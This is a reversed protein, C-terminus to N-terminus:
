WARVAEGVVGVPRGGAIKTSFTTMPAATASSSSNALSGIAGSASVVSSSYACMCAAMHVIGGRGGTGASFGFVGTIWSTGSYLPYCSDVPLSDNTNLGKVATDTTSAIKSLLYEYLDGNTDRDVMPIDDILQVKCNREDSGCVAYVGRGIIPSIDGTDERHNRLALHLSLRVPV